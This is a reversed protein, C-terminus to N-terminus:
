ERPDIGTVAALFEAPEVYNFLELEDAGQGQWEGPEPFIPDPTLYYSVAQSASANHTTIM